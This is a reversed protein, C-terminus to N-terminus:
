LRLAKSQESKRGTHDFVISHYSAGSKVQRILCEALVTLGDSKIPMARLKHARCIFAGNYYKMQLGFLSNLLGVYGGSLVRRIWPRNHNSRVHSTVIDAQHRAMILDCLSSSAMDNDGPFVTIFEGTAHQIGRKFAHGFGRNSENSFIVVRPDGKAEELAQERTGDTSGDDIVIIEYLCGADRVASLVSQIASRINGQENFAPIIITVTEKV